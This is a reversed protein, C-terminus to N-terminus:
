STCTRRATRTTSGVTHVPHRAGIVPFHPLRCGSLELRYTSSGAGKHDIAATVTVQGVLRALRRIPEPGSAGATDRGPTNSPIPSSERPSLASWRTRWWTDRAGPSPLFFYLCRL